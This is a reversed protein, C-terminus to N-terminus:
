DGKNFRVDKSNFSIGREVIKFEELKGDEVAVADVKFKDGLEDEAGRPFKVLRVTNM